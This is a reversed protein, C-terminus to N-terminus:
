PPLGICFICYLVFNSPNLHTTVQRSPHPIDIAVWRALSRWFRVGFAFTIALVTFDRRRSYPPRACPTWPRHVRPGTHVTCKGLAHPWRPSRPPGNACPLHFNWSKRTLNSPPFFFQPIPICSPTSRSAICWIWLDFDVFVWLFKLDCFFNTHSKKHPM